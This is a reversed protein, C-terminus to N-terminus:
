NGTFEEEPKIYLHKDTITFTLHEIPATQRFWHQYSPWDVFDIMGEDNHALPHTLLGLNHLDTYRIQFDM